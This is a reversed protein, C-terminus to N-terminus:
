PHSDLSGTSQRPTRSVARATAGEERGAEDARVARAARNRRRMRHRNSIPRAATPAADEPRTRTARENASQCVNFETKQKPQRTSAYQTSLVSYQGPESSPTSSHADKKAPALEAGRNM